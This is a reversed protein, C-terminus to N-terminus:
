RYRVGGVFASDLVIDENDVLGVGRAYYESYGDPIYFFKIVDDFHIGTPTDYTVYGKFKLTGSINATWLTDNQVWTATSSYNYPEDYALDFPIVLPPDFQYHYVDTLMHFYFGASDGATIISWAEATQGNHLIRKCQYGNIVTDGSVERIIQDSSANTYYWTDGDALPFYDPGNALVVQATTFQWSYTSDMLNGALDKINKNVVATFTHNIALNSDPTLTVTRDNFSTASSVGVVAFTTNTVTTTDIKESFTVSITSNLPINVAGAAPNTSVVRPPTTDPEVSKKDDGGCSVLLFALVSWILMYGIRM